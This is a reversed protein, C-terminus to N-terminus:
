NVLASGRSLPMSKNMGNLRSILIADVDGSILEKNLADKLSEGNSYAPYRDAVYRLETNNLRAVQKLVATSYTIGDLEAFLQQALLDLERKRDESLVPDQSYDTVDRRFLRKIAPWNKWLLFLLILVILVAWFARSKLAKMAITAAPKM